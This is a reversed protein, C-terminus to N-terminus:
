VTAVWSVVGFHYEHVKKLWDRDGHSLEHLHTTSESIETVVLFAEGLTFLRALKGQATTGSELLQGPEKDRPFNLMRDPLTLSGSNGTALWAHVGYLDMERFEDAAWVLEDSVSTRESIVTVFMGDRVLAELLPRFDQDGTLLAARHMNRRHAHTLMDVAISVDVEKQTLRKRKRKVIGEQVHWGRALQLSQFRRRQVELRHEFAEQSEDNLQAPLCNYYFTKTFGSSLKAPDFELPQGEFFNTSFSKLVGDLYAGDVFLYSTERPGAYGQSVIGM